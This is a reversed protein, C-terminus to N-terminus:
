ATSSQALALQPHKRREVFKSTSQLSYGCNMQAPSPPRSSVKPALPASCQASSPSDSDYQLCGSGNFAHVLREQVVEHRIQEARSGSRHFVPKPPLQAVVELDKVAHAASTVLLDTSGGEDQPSGVHQPFNGEAPGGSSASRQAGASRKRVVVPNRFYLKELWRGVFESSAVGAGSAGSGEATMAVAEGASAISQTASDPRPRSVTSGSGPRRSGRSNSFPAYPSPPAVGGIRRAVIDTLASPTTAAGAAPPNAACEALPLSPRSVGATKESQPPPLPAAPVLSPHGKSVMVKSAVYGEEIHRQLLFVLSSFNASESVGDFECLMQLCAM